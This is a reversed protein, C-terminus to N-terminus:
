LRTTTDRTILDLFYRTAADESTFFREDRRLGRECYYVRWGGQVADLCYVEDRESCELDYARERIGAHRLAEKLDEVTM